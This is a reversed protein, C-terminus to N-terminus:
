PTSQPIVTCYGSSAAVLEKIDADKIFKGKTKLYQNQITYAQLELVQRELCSKDDNDDFFNAVEQYYHVIEHVLYARDWDDQFKVSHDLYIVGSQYFGKVAFGKPCGKTCIRKQLFSTDIYEIQPMSFPISHGFLKHTERALSEFDPKDNAWIPTSLLLMLVLLFNKM